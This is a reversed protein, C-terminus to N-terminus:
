SKHMWDRYDEDEDEFQPFDSNDYNFNINSSKYSKFKSNSKYSKKDNKFKEALEKVTIRKCPVWKPESDTTIDTTINKSSSKTKKFSSKTKIPPSNTSDDNSNNLSSSSKTDVSSDLSQMDKLIDTSIISTTETIIDTSTDITTNTDLSDSLLSNSSSSQSSISSTNKLQAALRDKHIKVMLQETVEEIGSDKLEIMEGRTYENFLSLLGQFSLETDFYEYGELFGQFTSYSALDTNVESVKEIIAEQNL